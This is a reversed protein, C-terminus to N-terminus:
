AFVYSSWIPDLVWEGTGPLLLALEQPTGFIFPGPEQGPLFAQLCMQSGRTDILVYLPKPDPNQQEVVASILQFTSLAQLPCGLGFTLGYDAALGVRISTLSGPGRSVAVAQIDQFSLQGERLVEEIFPFLVVTPSQDPTCIRQALPVVQTGQCHCLNGDCDRFTFVEGM